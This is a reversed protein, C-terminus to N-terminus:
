RGPAPSARSASSAATPTSSGRWSPWASAPAARARPSSPISRAPACRPTWARAPTRSRCRSAARATSSSTARADRHARRRGVDGPHRQRHPQRDVQRLSTRTPGSRRSPSPSSAARRRARDNGEALALGRECSSACALRAPARPQHPARLPASRRRPPEPPSTEEDLIGLLTDRDDDAVGRRRLTAVANSIIALPNRVEHAVVASLEGVAALQEKRVLEDQAARLEEYSRALERARDKLDRARGELQSRLATFRALLTMMVGNVFAAYGFPALPPGAVWGLNRLGDYVAAVALLALGVFGVAERRGRMFARALVVLALAAAGATVVASLAGLATPEARLYPVRAGLIWAEERRVEGLSGSACAIALLGAGGYLAAIAARPRLARAYQLIFHLLFAIGGVRGAEAVLLAAGVGQGPDQASRAYAQALGGDLAVVAVNLLGFVLLERDTRGPVAGTRPPEARRPSRPGGSAEQASRGYLVLSYVAVSGHAAALASLFGAIAYPHVSPM